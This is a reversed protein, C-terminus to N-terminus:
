LGELGVPCGERGKGRHLQPGMMMSLVLLSDLARLSRLEARRCIFLVVRVGLDMFEEM